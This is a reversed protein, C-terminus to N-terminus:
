TGNWLFWILNGFFLVLIGSWLVASLGACVSGIIRYPKAANWYQVEKQRVSGAIWLAVLAFVLGIIPIFGLLGFVLCRQSNRLMRIKAIAHPNM